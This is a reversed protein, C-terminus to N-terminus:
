HLKFAVTRSGEWCAACSGCSKAQGTQELCKFSGDPLPTQPGYWTAGYDEPPHSSSHRINFTQIGRRIHWLNRQVAIARGIVSTEPWATYGFIKLRPFAVLMRHWFQVYAESYFDGLVHLRLLVGVLRPKMFLRCLEDEIKAELAKGSDMRVSFPMNNGYCDEWRECSKPCTAREQLTLSYIQYGKLRGRTVVGGLKRNSGGHKLAPLSTSMDTTVRKPYATRSQAVAERPIKSTRTRPRIKKTRPM